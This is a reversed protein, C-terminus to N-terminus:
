PLLVLTSGSGEDGKLPIKVWQEVQDFVKEQDLSILGANSDLSSSLKLIDRILYVNDLMSRGSVCYTKDQHIAQEMAGRMRSALAKSLIEQLNGKM